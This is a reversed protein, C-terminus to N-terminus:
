HSGVAIILKGNVQRPEQFGEIILDTVDEDNFRGRNWQRQSCEVLYKTPNFLKLGKPPHNVAPGTIITFFVTNKKENFQINQPSGTLMIKAGM